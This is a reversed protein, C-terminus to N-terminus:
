QWKVPSAHWEFESSIRDPAVNGLWKIALVFDLLMSFHAVVDHAMFVRWTFSAM